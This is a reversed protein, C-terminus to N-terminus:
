DETLYPLLAERAFNCLMKESAVNKITIDVASPDYWDFPNKIGYGPRVIEVVIGGHQKYVWGQDRRVSGFSFASADVHRVRQIASEPIFTDGAIEELKNGISGLLRRVEMSRGGPLEVTRLKGEQTNVDNWGLGFHRVAIERCPYGDDVPVVGFETQLYKQVTSKGSEPAGCLAIFKRSNVM